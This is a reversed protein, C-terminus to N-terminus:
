CETDLDFCIYQNIYNSLCTLLYTFYTLTSQPWNKYFYAVRSRCKNTELGISDLPRVTPRKQRKSGYFKPFELQLTMKVYNSLDVVKLDVMNVCKAANM